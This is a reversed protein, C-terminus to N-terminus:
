IGTIEVLPVLIEDITIGGHTVIIEGYETFAYRSTPLVAVLNHPLLGDDEWLVIDKYTSQTIQAARRDTYLRARRGRSQAMLGEAPTGIGSAECHGHDSTLFVTFGQELLSNIIAELKSSNRIQSGSLWLEITAQHDANGLMSGHMIEDLQREILCLAQLRPNTIEPMPDNKELNLALLSIANEPLGERMWFASWAKTETLRTANPVYFDAPRLGSILSHRSIATITPIQALLLNEKFHWESHRTEWAQKILFWDSLSMGDMVLLAIKRVAGQSRVYNLYHPVHHVHHPTPLKQTALPSYRRKLWDTFAPDLRSGIQIFPDNGESASWTSAARSANHLLTLEAWQHAIAQWDEWRTEPTLNALTETLSEILEAARRPRPDEDVVFVGPVVWVPLPSKTEVRVPTISGHRLLRPLADQLSQDTEFHLLYEASKEGINKGTQMSLYGNWQDQIFRRYAHRDQLIESLRWAKYEPADRLQDLVYDLIPQPLPALSQHYDDLWLIFYAPQRLLEPKLSFVHELLFEITRREGLPERPAKVQSLRARQAATLTRVVPYALDPFFEHLALKIHQGQQWLDYPLAELIGDTIVLVPNSAAFPKVQEIRQRLLIPDNEQIIQFGRQTLASLAAEDTLLGDPDGVLVLPHTNAPFRELLTQLM